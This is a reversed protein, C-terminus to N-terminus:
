NYKSTSLLYIRYLQINLKIVKKQKVGTFGMEWIEECMVSAQTELLMMQRKPLLRGRMDSGISQGM